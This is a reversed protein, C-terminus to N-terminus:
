KRDGAAYSAWLSHCGGVPGNRLLHCVGVSLESRSGLTSRITSWPVVQWGREGDRIDTVWLDRHLRSCETEVQFVCLFTFKSFIFIWSNFLVSYCETFLWPSGKNMMWISWLFMVFFTLLFLFMMGWPIRYLLTQNLILFYKQSPSNM